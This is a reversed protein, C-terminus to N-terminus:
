KLLLMRKTDRYEGAQLTYFYVGSPMASADWQVSYKGADKKENVLTAMERGLIDFVKMSVYSHVPLQYSIVTAPNFPNPYNQALSYAIPVTNDSAIIGTPQIVITVSDTWAPFGESSISLLLRITRPSPCAPNVKMVQQDGALSDKGPPLDGFDLPSVSGLTLM